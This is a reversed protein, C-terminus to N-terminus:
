TSSKSSPLKHMQAPLATSAFSLANPLKPSSVILLQHHQAASSSKPKRSSESSVPPVSRPTAHLRNRNTAPSTPKTSSSRVLNQYLCSFHLARGSSLRHPKHMLSPKGSPM